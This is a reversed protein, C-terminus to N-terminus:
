DWEENGAAEDAQRALMMKLEDSFTAWKARVEKSVYNKWEHILGPNDWDPADWDQPTNDMNMEWGVHMVTATCVQTSRTGDRHLGDVVPLGRACGDCNKHPKGGKAGEDYYDKKWERGHHLCSDCYSEQSLGNVLGRRTCKGCDVAVGLLDNLM